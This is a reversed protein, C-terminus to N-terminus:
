DDNQNEPASVKISSAQLVQGDLVVAVPASQVQKGESTVDIKDGYKKPAMKRAYFQRAEVRLRSRQIAEKNPRVVVEGFEDVSEEIDDGKYDAIELTEEMLAEARWEMARAYQKALNESESVWELFEVNSPLKEHDRGPNLISRVSEGEMVRQLIEKIAEAKKAETWKLAM